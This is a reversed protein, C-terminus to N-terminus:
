GTPLGAVAVAIPGSFGEIANSSLTVQGSAGPTLALTAPAATLTFDPNNGPPPPPPTTATVTLAVSTNASLTGSAGYIKVNTTGVAADTTASLTFTTSSGVAVTANAPSITVGSPLGTVSVTIMGTFSNTSAPTVTLRRSPGQAITVTAPAGVTFTSDTTGGGSSGSVTSGCGAVLAILCLCLLSILSVRAHRMCSWHPCAQNVQRGM